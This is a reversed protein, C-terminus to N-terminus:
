NLVYVRGIETFPPTERQVAVTKGLKVSDKIPDDVVM